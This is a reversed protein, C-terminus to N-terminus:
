NPSLALHKAATLHRKPPCCSISRTGPPILQGTSTLGDLALKCCIRRPNEQLRGPSWSYEVLSVQHLHNGAIQTQM